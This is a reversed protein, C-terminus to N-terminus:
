HEIKLEQTFGTPLIANVTMKPLDNLHNSLLQSPNPFNLISGEHSGAEPAMGNDIKILRRDSSIGCEGEIGFAKPQHGFVIGALRSATLAEEVGIRPISKIEWKKAELISWAGIFFSNQYTSLTPYNLFISATNKFDTWKMHTYFGSHAFIWAGVKAAIPLSLLFQARPYQPQTIQDVSLGKQTLEARFAESKNQAPDALFEAEHNGLLHVIRGQAKEAQPTLSMWLDLVEISQPGKDISDGIVVLLTKGGTWSFPSTSNGTVNILKAAKLLKLLQPYM